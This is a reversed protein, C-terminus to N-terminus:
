GDFGRLFAGATLTITRTEKGVKASATATIDAYRSPLVNIAYAGSSDLGMTVSLNTVGRVLEIKQGQKSYGPVNEYRLILVTEAPDAPSTATYASVVGKRGPRADRWRLKNTGDAVFTRTNLGGVQQAPTVSGEVGAPELIEVSERLMEALTKIGLDARRFAQLYAYSQNQMRVLHLLINSVALALISMVIVSLMVEILTFGRRLTSPHGTRM